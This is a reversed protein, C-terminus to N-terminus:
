IVPQFPENQCRTFLDWGSTIHHFSNGFLEANLPGVGAPKTLSVSLSAAVAGCADETEQGIM